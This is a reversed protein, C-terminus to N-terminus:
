KAACPTRDLRDVGGGNRQAVWTGNILTVQDLSVEDALIINAFGVAELVVRFM